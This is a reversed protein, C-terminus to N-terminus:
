RNVCDTLLRPAMAGTIKAIPSVKRYATDWGSALSDQVESRPM